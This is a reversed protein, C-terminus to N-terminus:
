GLYSAKYMFKEIKKLSDIYTNVFVGMAVDLRILRMTEIFYIM